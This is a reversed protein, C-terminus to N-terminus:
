MGKIEYRIKISERSYKEAFGQTIGSVVGLGGVVKMAAADTTPDGCSKAISCSTVARSTNFRISLHVEGPRGIQPSVQNWRVDIARKLASISLSEEDSTVQEHAGVRASMAMMKRIEDDTLTKRDTKGNRPPAPAAPKPQPQPKVEKASALMQKKRDALKEAATKEKPKPPEPPKVEPPKPEPPKPPEVKEEEKPTTVVAEPQPDPAPPPTEPVVPMPPPPEPEPPPPEPPVLPPPENEDGDLNEVPIVTLDMPIVVEREHFTMQGAFWLAAFFLVHIALAAVFNSAGKPDPRKEEDIYYSM